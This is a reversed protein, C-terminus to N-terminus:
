LKKAKNNTLKEWRNIIVEVYKNDLEMIFAKRGEKEASILTSGSGGFLDLINEERKTSNRIARAVLELPKQTPHCMTNSARRKIEWVDAEFRSEVFYHEGGNWGYLIPQAKKIKEPNKTKIIM